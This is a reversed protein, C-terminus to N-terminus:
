CTVTVGPVAGSYQQDYTDTGTAASAVLAEFTSANPQNNFGFLYDTSQQGTVGDTFTVDVIVLQEGTTAQACTTERNSSDHFDAAFTASVAFTGSTGGNFTGGTIRYTGGGTPIGCPLNSVTHAGCSTVPSFSVAGTLSITGLSADTGAITLNNLTVCGSTGPVVTCSPIGSSLAGGQAAYSTCEGANQFGTGDARFLSLYGSQQCAHAADANGAAHTVGPGRLGAVGALLLSLVLLVRYM